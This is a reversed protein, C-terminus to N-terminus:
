FVWDLYQAPQKEEAASGYTHQHQANAICTMRKQNHKM